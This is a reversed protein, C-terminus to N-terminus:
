YREQQRKVDQWLEDLPATIIVGNQAKINFKAPKEPEKPTLEQMIQAGYCFADSPHSAWNHLPERSFIGTEDNYAYEWALLGDIGAECRDRHFECKPIVARAANIQDAKKSMPVIAVKSATFSSIFREATTHKSQFTKARADHPLWIKGVKRSAGLEIIKDQIRPIWEDADLGTDGDYMLVRFGGLARQWYWFSATDRFGLDASVEIPAGEPDFKVDNNIRGDREARGIWRALIAGQTTGYAGNWIHEAKDEDSVFDHEMENRLVDPFWPNDYWNVMVSNADPPPDKRFLKDVPDTKFRPNWSFWLESGEKRLTPRLLDLSHQSLTQAEEVWAIDYGELSKINSANYSQMGKFVILSGNPGRIESELVDFWHMLGLKNIKDILLQKVSDKISNQVERICVIRTPSAYARVIVQEAFFHSKAGGRGGYAGKYRKPALLPRLKRPIQIRLEAV